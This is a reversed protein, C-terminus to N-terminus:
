PFLLLQYASLYFLVATLRSGCHPMYGTPKKPIRYNIDKLLQLINEIKKVLRTNIQWSIGAKKM